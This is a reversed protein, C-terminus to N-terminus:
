QKVEIELKFEGMKSPDKKYYEQQIIDGVWKEKRLKQIWKTFQVPHNTLGSIFVVQNRFNVEKGDKMKGQVPNLELNKLYLKSPLHLAIRDSYYSLKSQSSLGSKIFFAEKEELEMKLSNMKVLLGKGTGLQASLEIHRKNLDDFRIFNVLLLLFVICLFAYQLGTALRRASSEKRLAIISEPFHSVASFGLTSVASAFPLVRNADLLESGIQYQDLDEGKGRKYSEFRKESLVLEMGPLILISIDALLPLLNKLSIPGLYLDIIWLNRKKFDQLIKELFDKRVICLLVRDSSGIDMQQYVFDDTKGNPLIAEFGAEIQAKDVEKVLIGHGSLNLSIQSNAPIADLQDTSVEGSEKEALAIIENITRKMAFIECDSDSQSKIHLHVGYIQNGSLWNKIYTFGSM